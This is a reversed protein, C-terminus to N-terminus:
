SIIFIFNRNLLGHLKSTVPVWTLPHLFQLKINRKFINTVMKNEQIGLACSSFFDFQELVISQSPKEKVM